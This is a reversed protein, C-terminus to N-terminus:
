QKEKSRNPRKKRPESQRAWALFEAREPPTLREWLNRLEELPAPSEPPPPSGDDLEFRLAERAQAVTPNLLGAERLASAGALTEELDAAECGLLERCFREWTRPGGVLRGRWDGARLERVHGVLLSADADPQVLCIAAQHILEEFGNGSLKSSMAEAEAGTKGTQAKRAGAPRGSLKDFRSPNPAAEPRHLREALRLRAGGLLRSVRSESLGLAEGVERLRLGNLYHLTVARRERESLAALAEALLRRQEAEEARRGPGEERPDALRRALAGKGCELSAMRMLRLAALREASSLAERAKRIRALREFVHQPLPHSRRLEDLVAGRVRLYAYTDFRTGREPEFKRAAEVLGLVGAAELNEVDAAAPLRARLKRVVGRVLGLHALILRDRRAVAASTRSLQAGAPM